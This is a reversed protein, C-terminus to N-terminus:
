RMVELLRREFGNKIDDIVAQRNGDPIHLAHVYLTRRDPSVEMSLTGPTLTIVQALVTIEADTTADLPVAVIGPRIDLGPTLIERAIRINAVLLQGLFYGIFMVLRGYNVPRIHTFGTMRKPLLAFLIIGIVFGGLLNPLSFNGQLCAFIVALFLSRVIM